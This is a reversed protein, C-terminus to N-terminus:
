GRAGDNELLGLAAAKAVAEARNAAQLKELIHHVHTKVTNGSIYLAEAIASTTAGKAMLLLVERERPSLKVEPESRRGRVAAKLVQATVKGALVAEGAAAKRIARLLEEPEADKLLYGDAGAALAGLLDDDRESVTLMLVRADVAHKLEPIIEFGKRGPMHVDMLVVDPRTQRALRLAKKARDAQGVVVMDEEEELLDVVGLRFLPHDDVVLVRIPANM